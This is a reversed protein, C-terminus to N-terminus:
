LAGGFKKFMYLAGLGIAVIAVTIVKLVWGATRRNSILGWKVCIRYLGFGAHYEGALLLLVYFWLYGSDVRLASKAATIPWEYMVSWVHISGMIVIILATVVQGVWIWTDTHAIMRAHRWTTQMDSLRWPARRGAVFIHVLFIVIVAPIGIHALYYKDLSEALLDFIQKGFLITGVFLMHIWLFAVLSIGTAAEALDVYLDTKPNARILAKQLTKALEM